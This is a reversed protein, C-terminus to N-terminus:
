TTQINNILLKTPQNRQRQQEIHQYTGSRHKFTSTVISFSSSRISIINFRYSRKPFIFYLIDSGSKYLNHTYSHLSKYYLEIDLLTIKIKFFNFLFYLIYIYLYLIYVIHIQNRKLIFHIFNFIRDSEILNKRLRISKVTSSYFYSNIHSIMLMSVVNFVESIFGM